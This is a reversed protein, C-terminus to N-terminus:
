KGQKFVKKADIPAVPTNPRIKHTGDVVILEGNKIGEFVTEPTRTSIYRDSELTFYGSYGIEDLAKLYADFPVNGEGLPVELFYDSLRLDEIGGEAFFTYVKRPNIIFGKGDKAHTDTDMSAEARSRVLLYQRYDIIFKEEHRTGM